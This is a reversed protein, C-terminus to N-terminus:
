PRRNLRWIGLLAAGGGWVALAVAAEQTAAGALCGLFFGHVVSMVIAGGRTQPRQPM